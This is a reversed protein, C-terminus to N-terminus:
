NQTFVWSKCHIKPPGSVTLTEGAAVFTMEPVVGEAVPGFILRKKDSAEFTYRNTWGASAVDFLPSPSAYHTWEDEILPIVIPNSLPSTDVIRQLEAVDINKSTFGARVVNDSSAMVELGAGRLYAHLNGAPLSLVQGPHLMVHNLLPAIRLGRDTPYLDAIRSLWGPVGNMSPPTRQDFAWLMYGDIGNSDLVDAEDNWGFDRLRAISSDINDFGVLAEFETLAIIMEPKDSEDKYTRKPDTLAIGAAEERAYGRAAQQRNPHTQLSLPKSCALVKVLMTMDGAVSSLLPGNADDIHSPAIPHTGFWLEAWPTGDPVVGFLQPIFSTDGWDYHQVIGTVRAVM